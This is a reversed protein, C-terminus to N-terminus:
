GDSRGGAIERIARELVRFARECAGWYEVAIGTLGNASRGLPSLWGVRRMASHTNRGPPRIDVWPASPCSACAANSITSPYGAKWSCRDRVPSAQCVFASPARNRFFNDTAMTGSRLQRFRITRCPIGQRRVGRCRCAFATFGSTSFGHRDQGVRVAPQFVSIVPEHSSAARIETARRGPGIRSAIRRAARRSIPTSEFTRATPARDWWYGTM